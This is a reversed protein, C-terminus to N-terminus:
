SKVSKQWKGYAGARIKFENYKMIFDIMEKRSLGKIKVKKSRLPIKDMSRPMFRFPLLKNKIYKTNFSSILKKFVKNARAAVTEYGYISCKRIAENASTNIISKVKYNGHLLLTEALLARKEHTKM